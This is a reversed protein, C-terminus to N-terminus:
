KVIGNMWKLMILKQLKKELEQETLRQFKRGRKEQEKGRDKRIIHWMLM